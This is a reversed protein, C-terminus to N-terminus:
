IFPASGPPPFSDLGVKDREKSLATVGIRWSYSCIETPGRALVCFLRVINLCDCHERYSIGLLGTLCSCPIVNWYDAGLLEARALGSSWGISEVVGQGRPLPRDVYM